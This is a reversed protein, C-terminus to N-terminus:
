ECLTQLKDVLEKQPKQFARVELGVSCLFANILLENQLHTNLTKLKLSSRQNKGSKGEELESCM